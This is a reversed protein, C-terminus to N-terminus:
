ELHSIKDKAQNYFPQALKRAQDSGIRNFMYDIKNEVQERSLKSPIWSIFLPSNVELFSISDADRLLDAQTNGGQEHNIILDAVQKILQIRAEETKLFNATFEASRQGHWQAYVPDEWDGFEEGPPHRNEKFAREIDHTLAAIRLANSAHPDLKRVWYETRILHDANSYIQKVWNKVANILQDM